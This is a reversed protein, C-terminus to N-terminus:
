FYVLSKKILVYKLVMRAYTRLLIRIKGCRHDKPAAFLSIVVLECGRMSNPVSVAYM